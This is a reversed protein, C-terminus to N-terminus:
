VAMLNVVITKGAIYPHMRTHCPFGHREIAADLLPLGDMDTLVPVWIAFPCCDIAGESVRASLIARLVMSSVRSSARNAAM